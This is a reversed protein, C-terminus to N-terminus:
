IKAIPAATEDNKHSAYHEFVAGGYVRMVVDNLYETDSNEPLSSNEAAAEVLHLLEEIEEGVRDADVLGSKVAVLHEAEPRPLTIHGTEFLEVAEYGIRLAYSLAKWDNGKGEQAIRARKGYSKVVNDSIAKADKLTITVPALKNSIKLHAMTKGNTLLRDVEIVHPSEVEDIISGIFDGLLSQAGHENMLRGLVTQVKQAAELRNGKDGYNLAQQRCYGL